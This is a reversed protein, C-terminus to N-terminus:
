PLRVLVAGTIVGVGTALAIVLLVARSVQWREFVLFAWRRGDQSWMMAIVACTLAIPVIGIWGVTAFQLPPAVSLAEVAAFALELVLGPIWAIAGGVAPLALLIVALAFCLPFALTMLPALVVDAIVASVSWTGFVALVVPLTGIYAALVAGTIARASAIWGDGGPELRLQGAIAASAIFSLWFSLTGTAGPDWFGLAASALVLLTMLDPHRGSRAALLGLSAVLAARVAPPELGVLVAYAWITTIIGVQVVLMRRYRGPRVLLNWLVLLMSINSGSVATIHTTGTVLFSNRAPDSLASDDGTVIGSALAGVDGPLVSLFRLSLTRRLDVLERSWSGGSTIIEVKSVYAVADAGQSQVFSGFGPDITTADEVSWSVSVRDGPAVMADKPLWAMTRFDTASSRSGSFHVADIHLLVRDGSPSPAPLSVVDGTGATSASLDSPLTAPPDEGGRVAGIATAALIVVLPALHVNRRVLAATLALGLMIPVAISGLWVGAIM